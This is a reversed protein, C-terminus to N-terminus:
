VDGYGIVFDHLPENPTKAPVSEKNVNALHVSATPMEADRQWLKQSVSADLDVSAARGTM